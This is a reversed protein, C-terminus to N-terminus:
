NNSWKAGQIEVATRFVRYRIHADSLQKGYTALDQDLKASDTFLGAPVQLKDPPTSANPDFRALSRRDVCVMAVDVMPPVQNRMLDARPAPYSAAKVRLSLPYGSEWARSDYHYNPSLVSGQLSPTYTTNFVNTSVVSEDIPSLRPRFVLLTVDEALVRPRPQSAQRPTAFAGLWNTDYGAAATSEYVQLKEAPQVFQMLRFRKASGFLPKLWGPLLSDDPTGYEVYFGVSNLTRNLSTLSSADTDGMPAQFFIASGPNITASAGPVVQSAPGAIFHLESARMFKTPSFTAANAATRYNTSADVYDNYTNLTARALTRNVTSFASRANQFASIKGSSSKWIAGVGGTMQLLVVMVMLLIVTAVLLEILSFAEPQGPTRSRKEM